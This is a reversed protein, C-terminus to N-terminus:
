IEPEETYEWASDRNMYHTLQADTIPYMTRYVMRGNPSIRIAVSIHGTYNKIFSVSKDKPHVSIYDPKAIISPIESFCTEFEIDSMFDNRHLETHAVRDSWFLIDRDAQLVNRYEPRREVIFDVMPQTLRGISVCKVTESFTDSSLHSVRKM